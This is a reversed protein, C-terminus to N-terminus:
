TSHSAKVLTLEFVEKAEFCDSIDMSYHDCIVHTIMEGLYKDQEAGHESLLRVIAAEEDARHGADDSTSANILYYRVKDFLKTTDAAAIDM